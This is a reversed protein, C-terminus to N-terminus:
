HGGAWRGPDKKSFDVNKLFSLEESFPAIEFPMM